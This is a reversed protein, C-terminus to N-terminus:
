LIATFAATRNAVSIFYLSLVLVHMSASILVLKCSCLVQKYLTSYCNEAKDRGRFTEFPSCRFKILSFGAIM